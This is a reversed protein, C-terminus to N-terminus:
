RGEDQTFDYKQIIEGIAELPPACHKIAETLARDAEDSILELGLRSIRDLIEEFLKLEHHLNRILKPAAKIEKFQQRLWQVGQLAQGALGVFQAAGCAISFPDAM